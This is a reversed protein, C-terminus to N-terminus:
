HTRESRTTKGQLSGGNNRQNWQGGQFENNAKIARVSNMTVRYSYLQDSDNLHNRGILYIERKHHRVLVMSDLSAWKALKELELKYDYLVSSMPM